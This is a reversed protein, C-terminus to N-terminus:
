AETIGPRHVEAYRARSRIPAPRRRAVPRRRLGDTSWSVNVFAFSHLLGHRRRDAHGRGEETCDRRRARRPGVPGPPGAEGGRRAEDRHHRRAESPARVMPAGCTGGCLRRLSALCARYEQGCGFFTWDVSPDAQPPAVWSTGGVWSSDEELFRGTAPSDASDVGTLATDDILAWGQRSLIGPQVNGDAITASDIENWSSIGLQM